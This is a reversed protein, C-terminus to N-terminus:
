WRNGCGNCMHVITSGEDASRLQAERTVVRKSGCRGCTYISSEHVIENARSRYAIIACVTDVTASQPVEEGVLRSLYRRNRQLLLEIVKRSYDDAM